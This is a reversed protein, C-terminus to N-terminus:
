GVAKPNGEAYQVYSLQKVKAFVFKITKAPAVIKPCPDLAAVIINSEHHIKNM